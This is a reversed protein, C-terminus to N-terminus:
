PQDSQMESKVGGILLVIKELVENGVQFKDKANVTVRFFRNYRQALFNYADNVDSLYTWDNESLNKENRYEYRRKCQNIDGELLVTCTYEVKCFKNLTELWDITEEYCKGHEKQIRALIYAYYTDLGRDELIVDYVGTAKLSEYVINYRIAQSLFTEIYPYDLRFFVDNKYNMINFLKKGVRDGDYYLLDDICVCKIGADILKSKVINIVTTKGVGPLGEFNIIKNMYYM